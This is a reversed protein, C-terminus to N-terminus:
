QPKADKPPAQVLRKRVGRGRAAATRTAATKKDPEAVIEKPDTGAFRALAEGFDMDLWLPPQRKGTTM